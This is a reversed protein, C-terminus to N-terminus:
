PNPKDNKRTFKKKTWTYFDKSFMGVIGGLFGLIITKQLDGTQILIPILALEAGILGAIRENMDKM